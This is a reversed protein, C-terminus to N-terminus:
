KSLAEHYMMEWFAMPCMDKLQEPNHYVAEELASWARDIAELHRPDDQGAPPENLQKVLNGMLRRGLKRRVLPNEERQLRDCLSKLELDTQGVPAIAQYKNNQKM